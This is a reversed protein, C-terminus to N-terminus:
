QMADDIPFINYYFGSSDDMANRGIYARLQAEIIKRSVRLETDNREVGHREAYAVFDEVIDVSALLADLEELSKIREMKARHRDAFEITYRYLINGDWVRNYYKTIGTTDLPILKKAPLYQM